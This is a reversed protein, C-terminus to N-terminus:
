FKRLQTTKLQSPASVPDVFSAGKWDNFAWHWAESAKDKMVSFPGSLFLLDDHAMNEVIEKDTPSFLVAILVDQSNFETTTDGQKIKVLM